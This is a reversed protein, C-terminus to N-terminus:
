HANFRRGTAPNIRQDHGPMFRSRKGRPYQGCGCVCAPRSVAMAPTTPAPTPRARRNTPRSVRPRSPLDLADITRSSPVGLIWGEELRAPDSESPAAFSETLRDEKDLQRWNRVVARVQREDNCSGSEHAFPLLSPWIEAHVIAPSGIPFDPVLVEFPWVHSVTRLADHDRLRQLMPIGVLTQSGVSGPYALKWVSQPHAGRRYLQDEVERWESLGGPERASLYTVEKRVPLHPLMLHGPRGWFPAHRGLKVNIDSAIEFRNSVNREDDVVHRALYRWVGKWPEGDVGLAAAFGTPYSYPFDLGVLVREGKRVAATLQDLLWAEAARRTLHNKSRVGATADPGVCSWISDKGAKAKNNASWDVAIYRDFLPM